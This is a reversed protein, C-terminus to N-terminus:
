RAVVVMRAQPARKAQALRVWYVGPTLNAGAGADITFNGPRSVEINRENMLRGSVDFVQVKARESGPLDCSVKLASCAPNTLPHIALAGALSPTQEPTAHDSTSPAPEDGCEGKREALAARVGSINEIWRRIYWREPDAPQQDVRVAADGRVVHFVHVQGPLNTELKLSDPLYVIMEFRRVTLVRYHQTSDAHEPDVQESVGDVVLTVRSAPPMTIQGARQVGLLLGRVAGMEADRASGTTFRSMDWPTGDMTMGHFRYDATLVMGIADPSRDRYGQALEELARAPGVLPQNAPPISTTRAFAQAADLAVAILALCIMLLTRM